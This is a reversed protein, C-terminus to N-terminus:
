GRRGGRGPGPVRRARCIRRAPFRRFIGGGGDVEARDVAVLVDGRLLDDAAEVAGDLRVRFLRVQEGVGGAVEEAVGEGVVFEFFDAVVVGM